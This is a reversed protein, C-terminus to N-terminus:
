SLGGEVKHLPRELEAREKSSESVIVSALIAWDNHCGSERCLRAIEEAHREIDWLIEVKGM